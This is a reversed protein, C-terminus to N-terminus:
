GSGTRQVAMKAALAAGWLGSDENVNLTVPISQLLDHYNPNDKFERLFAPHQVLDPNKAAVGGAVVMGATALVNLAFHRCARGFFRAFWARVPSDDDMAAAVQEPKLRRGFHFQHLLTLGQGSVIVEAHVYELGQERRVFDAFATEEANAFAFAAHGAESPFVLFGGEPLQALMGHGLGTGAGIVGLMGHEDPRGANIVVGNELAPTKCAYAQAAFDNILILDDPMGSISISRIDIAWPINPPDAQTGGQIAGAVALAGSRCDALKPGLPGAKLQGLLDTFSTAESTPIRVVQERHLRGSQNHFIAFRSSTGGIDAALYRDDSVTKM